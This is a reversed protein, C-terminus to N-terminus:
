RMKSKVEMQKFESHCRLRRRLPGLALRLNLELEWWSLRRGL